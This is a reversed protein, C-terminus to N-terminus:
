QVCPTGLPPVPQDVAPRAPQNAVRAAIGHVFRTVLALKDFDIYQIEDTLQHYDPHSGTSFFAVPIGYRAYMYHDSRCYFQQPHGAADYQYDLQVRPTMTAAVEDVLRGYERSLRRSGIAQVYGPGGGPLDAASGRGIMDLNILAVISDRPVTPNDTFHAAGLLGMEEAAHWVFLLSRRPREASGAFAEAVELLAVTGSGDDDAGNYISDPRPPRVARLSDLIARIRAPEDARPNRMPSDAGAPRVVRLFARLSDHDVPPRSMGIHDHHAGFAVYQGRLAPDNGPFVAVVNRAGPAPEETIALQGSILQGTAGATLQNLPRGFIAQVMVATTYVFAPLEPAQMGSMGVGPEALDARSGADMADLSAVIVGAAERYRTTLVFRNAQWGEPVRVVVVKGAADAPAILGSADATWNGGFVTPAGALQRMRPGQDRPLFDQWIAFTQGGVSLSNAGFVRRVLPIRQFYTGNEGAPLLGIRAAEEAIYDTAKDNYITGAQRGSMSDHAVIELRHRLDAV